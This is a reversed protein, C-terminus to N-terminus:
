LFRVSTKTNKEQLNVATTPRNDADTNNGQGYGNKTGSLGSIGDFSLPLDVKNNYYKVKKRRRYIECRGVHCFNLKM